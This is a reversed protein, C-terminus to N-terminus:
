PGTECRKPSIRTTWNKRPSWARRTRRRRTRRRCAPSFTLTPPRRFWVRSTGGRRDPHGLSRPVPFSSANRARSFFCPGCRSRCRSSRTPGCRSRCRSSRTPRHLQPQTSAVPHHDHLMILQPQPIIPYFSNHSHNYGPDDSANTDGRKHFFALIVDAVAVPHDPLVTSSWM